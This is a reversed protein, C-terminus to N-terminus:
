VEWGFYTHAQKEKYTDQGHAHAVELVCGQEPLELKLKLVILV